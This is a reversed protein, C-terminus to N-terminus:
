NNAPSIVLMQVDAESNNIIGAVAGAPRYISENKNLVIDGDPTTITLQGEVVYYVSEGAKSGQEAGGGPHFLSYSISFGESTGLAKNHLRQAEMKFHAAPSYSEADALTVKKVKPTTEADSIAIGSGAIILALFLSLFPSKLRPMLIM